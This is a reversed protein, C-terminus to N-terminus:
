WLRLDYRTVACTNLNPSKLPESIRVSAFISLPFFSSQLKHWLRHQSFLWSVLLSDVLYNAFRVWDTPWVARDLYAYGLNQSEHKCGVLYYYLSLFQDRCAPRLWNFITLNPVSRYGVKVGWWVLHNAVAPWHPTSNLSHFHCQRASWNISIKNLLRTVQSFKNIFFSNRTREGALRNSHHCKDRNQFSSFDEVHRPGTKLAHM